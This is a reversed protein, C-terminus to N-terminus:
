PRFRHRRVKPKYTKDLMREAIDKLVPNKMKKVTKESVNKKLQACLPSTFVAKMEAQSRKLGLLIKEPSDAAAPVCLVAIFVAVFFLRLFKLFRLM